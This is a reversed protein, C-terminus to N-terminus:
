SGHSNRGFNMASADPAAAESVWAFTIPLPQQWACEFDNIGCLLLWLKTPCREV